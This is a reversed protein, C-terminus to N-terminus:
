LYVIPRFSDRSPVLSIAQNVKSYFGGAGTVSPTTQTYAVQQIGAVNLM